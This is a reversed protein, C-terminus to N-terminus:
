LQLLKFTKNQNKKLGAMMSDKNLRDKFWSNLSKLKVNEKLFLNNNSATMRGCLVSNSLNKMSVSQVVMVDDLSGLNPSWLLYNHKAM